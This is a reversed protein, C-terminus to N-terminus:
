GTETANSDKAVLENFRKEALHRSTPMFFWGLTGFESESPFCERDPLVRGDPFKSGKRKTVTIAVYGKIDTGNIYRAEYWARDGKREILSYDYGQQRLTHKKPLRKYKTAKM